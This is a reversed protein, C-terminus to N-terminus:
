ARGAADNSHDGRARRMAALAQDAEVHAACRGVHRMVGALILEGVLAHDGSHPDTRRHHLDVCHCGAASRDAAEVSHTKADPRLAGAGVWARGAVSVAARQSDGVAVEEEAPDVWRLKRRHESGAAVLRQVSFCRRRAKLRNGVADSALAELIDRMSEELDGDVVHSGRDALNRDRAAMVDGSVREGAKATGAALMGTGNGVRESHLADQDVREGAHKRGISDSDGVHLRDALRAPQLRKPLIKRSREALKLLPRAVRQDFLAQVAVPDFKQTPRSQARRPAVCRKLDCDSRRLLHVGAERRQM